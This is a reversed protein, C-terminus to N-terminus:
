KLRYFLVAICVFLHWAPRAFSSCHDTDVADKNVFQMWGYYCMIREAVSFVHLIFVSASTM